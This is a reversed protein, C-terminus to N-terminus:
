RLHELLSALRTNGAAPPRWDVHVTPVGCATLQTAFWELGLNIVRPGERFLATLHVPMEVPTAEGAALDGQVLLSEVPLDAHGDPPVAGVAVAALRVAQANSDALLFGHERLVRCQREYDQPDDPTGCVTAIGIVERDAARALERAEQWATALAMGPDPHAGWGLIVDCLVVGVDPCTVSELLQQRRAAPDLMPHPRGSTFEEAGLDLVVHRGASSIDATGDVNSDVRGLARRLLWLAEYALTGGCYLARLTCQTPQLVARLAGLSQLLHAPVDQPCPAIAEGRALSTAIGAAEELTTARYLGVGAAPWPAVDGVFALVCPKGMRAAEHALRASVVVDPPKSILVIVQTAADAALAQLAARMSRAGIRQHLDRGGVGIAQSIGIGRQALLCAVHQLGTGSAAILGVPGRRVHNAFGLPAGHLVATGCDPGMVLLGRQAALQKLEAEVELSVHDSFVFVHLNHRLAQLAEHRAYQGPVSICALNADPLRRLASELTRPAVEEAAVMGTHHPQMVQQRATRLAEEAVAPTEAQVCVLLDTAGAQAGEPTLLDVQRLLDKNQPTGMMVAARFVGPLAELTHSVHMLVVSDRYLSPLVVCRTHMVMDGKVWEEQATEAAIEDYDGM